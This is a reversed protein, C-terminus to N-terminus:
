SIRRKASITYHGTSQLATPKLMEEPLGHHRAGSVILNFYDTSPKGPNCVQDRSATCTIAEILNRLQDV